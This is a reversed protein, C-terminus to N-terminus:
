TINISLRLKKAIQFVERPEVPTTTNCPKLIYVMEGPPGWVKENTQAWLVVCRVGLAAALHTIGSDQGVFIRCGALERAVSTLPENLLLRLRPIPFKCGIRRVRGTEAEGGVLMLKMNGRELLLAILQCWYEEPWNKSESGSGPHLAITESKLVADSYIIRPVPDTHFVGMPELAKLLTVSAPVESIEGPQHCGSYFLADSVRAVNTKWTGNPDHLYSIICDFSSLWKYAAGDLWGDRVFFSAWCRDDLNRIEDALGAMKAIEGLGTPSLCALTTQPFSAKLAQFVPLTLIFDGIAGGRAVLIRKPPNPASNTKVTM